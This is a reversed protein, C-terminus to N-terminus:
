DISVITLITEDIMRSARRPSDIAAAGLFTFLEATRAGVFAAVVLTAAVLVATLGDAVLGVALRLVVLFGVAVTLVDALGLAVALAQLRGGAFFTLPLTTARASLSLSPQEVGGGIGVRVNSQVPM